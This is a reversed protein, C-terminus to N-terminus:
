SAAVRVRAPVIRKAICCHVVMATAPAARCFEICGAKAIICNASRHRLESKISRPQCCTLMVSRTNSFCQFSNWAGGVPSSHCLASRGTSNMWSYEFALIFLILHTVLTIRLQFSILHACLSWLSATGVCRAGISAAGTTTMVLETQVYTMM